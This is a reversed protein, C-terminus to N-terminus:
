WQWRHRFTKEEASSSQRKGEQSNKQQLKSADPDSTQVRKNKSDVVQAYMKFRAGYGLVFTGLPNSENPVDILERKRTTESYISFRVDKHTRKMNWVGLVLAILSDFGDTVCLEYVYNVDSKGVVLTSQPNSLNNPLVNITLIKKKTTGDASAEIVIVCVLKDMMTKNFITSRHQTTPPPPSSAAM